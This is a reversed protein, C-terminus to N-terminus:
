KLWYTEVKLEYHFVSPDVGGVPKNDSPATFAVSKVDILRLSSELDKLFLTFNEYNSDVTFSVPFVGYPTKDKSVESVVVNQDIKKTMSDFKIDKVPINHLNAIREIELIFQISNVGSPLFNNLRDKDEQKISNFSKVLSDETKQLNTSNDLATNYVVIDSRLTTVEKYLPNVGFIFTIISVAILLIPLIFNM